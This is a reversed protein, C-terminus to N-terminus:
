VIADHAANWRLVHRVFSLILIAFPFFSLIANTSIASALTYVESSFLYAVSPKLRRGYGKIADQTSPFSLFSIIRM